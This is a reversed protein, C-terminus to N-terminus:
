SCIQLQEKQKIEREKAVFKKIEKMENEEIDGFRDQDIIM